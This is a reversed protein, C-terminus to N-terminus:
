ILNNLDYGYKEATKNRNFSGLDWLSLDFSAELVNEYEDDLLPWFDLGTISEAEDVSVAFQTIDKYNVDDNPIIFAIAKKEEGYFDLFCVFYYHPVTIQSTKGITEFPGDTLVPGHVVCLYENQATASREAEELREYTYRNTNPKQPSMNSMYFSAQGVEDNWGNSAFSLLHGRDYGSGTYDSTVASDTIIMPDKIFKDSRDVTPQLINKASLVTAVWKAQEDKESYCLWYNPHYIVIEDCAPQCISKLYDEDVVPGEPAQYFAAQQREVVYIAIAAVAIILLIFLLLPFRKKKKM